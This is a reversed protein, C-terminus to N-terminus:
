NILLIELTILRCLIKKIIIGLRLNLLQTSGIIM